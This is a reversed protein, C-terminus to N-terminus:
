PEGVEVVHRGVKTGRSESIPEWGDTVELEIEREKEGVVKGTIRDKEEGSGDGQFVEADGEWEERRGEGDEGGRELCEASALTVLVAANVPIM